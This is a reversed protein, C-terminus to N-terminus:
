QQTLTVFTVGHPPVQRATYTDQFIGVNQHKWLDRVLAKTGGPWGPYKPWLSSSDSFVNKRYNPFECSGLNSFKVTIDYSKSDASNYLIVAFKNGPSLPKAWVQCTAPHSEECRRKSIRDGQQALPDQNVAIVETNFLVEKM